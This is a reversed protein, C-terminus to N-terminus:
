EMFLRLNPIEAQVTQMDIYQQDGLFPQEDGYFNRNNKEQNRLYVITQTIPRGSLLKEHSAQEVLHEFDYSGLSVVNGKRLESGRPKGRDRNSRVDM